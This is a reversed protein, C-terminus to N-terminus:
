QNSVVKSLAGQILKQQQESEKQRQEMAALRKQNDQQQKVPDLASQQFVPVSGINENMQNTSPMSAAEPTNTKEEEEDSSMESEETSGCSDSASREHTKSTQPESTITQEEDEENSSSSSRSSHKTQPLSTPHKPVCQTGDNVKLFSGPKSILKKPEQTMQTRLESSCDSHVRTARKNLSPVQTSSPEDDEMAKLGHRMRKPEEVFECSVKEATRKLGAPKASSVFLDKTGVFAPLCSKKINKKKEEKAEDPKFLSALIDEPNICGKKSQVRQPSTECVSSPKPIKSPGAKADDDSEEEMNKALEELDALSLELRHCNGMMAEYDSDISDSSSEHDNDSESESESETQANKIAPKKGSSEKSKVSSKKYLLSGTGVESLDDAKSSNKNQYLIEDTDASDYEEDNKTQNLGCQAVIGTEGRGWFINSKVLFDDGVVELIGNDETTVSQHNQSLEQAVLMRMEDESDADSDLVCLPPKCVQRFHPASDRPVREPAITSFPFTSPNVYKLSKTPGKKQPPFEGRRKKSIEDDGGDIQWTLKSM